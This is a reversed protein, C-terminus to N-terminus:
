EDAYPTRSSLRGVGIVESCMPYLLRPAIRLCLDDLTCIIRLLFRHPASAGTEAVFIEKVGELLCRPELRTEIFGDLFEAFDSIDLDVDGKPGHGKWWRWVSRALRYLPNGRMGEAFLLLGSPKLVRRIESKVGPYKALHHLAANFYVIDFTDTAFALASGDQTSFMCRGPLQMGSAHRTAARNGEHSFDVGVVTAGYAASLIALRGLGSGCDLVRRGRLGENLLLSVLRRKRVGRRYAGEKYVQRNKAWFNTKIFRTDKKLQADRSSYEADHLGREWSRLDEISRDSDTPDQFRM